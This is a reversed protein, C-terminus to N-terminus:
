VFVLIWQRCSFGRDGFVGTVLNGVTLYQCLDVSVDLSWPIVVFFLCDDFVFLCGSLCADLCVLM